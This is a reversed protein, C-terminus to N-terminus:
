SIDHKATRTGLVYFLTCGSRNGINLLVSTAARTSRYSVSSPKQPVIYRVRKALSCRGQFSVTMLVVLFEDTPTVELRERPSSTGSLLGCVSFDLVHKESVGIVTGHCGQGPHSPASDGIFTLPKSANTTSTATRGFYATQRRNQRRSPCAHKLTGTM